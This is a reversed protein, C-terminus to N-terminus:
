VRAYPYKIYKKVLEIELIDFLEYKIDDYKFYNTIKKAFDLSSSYSSLPLLVVISVHIGDNYIIFQDIVRIDSELKRRFSHELLHDFPKFVAIYSDILFEKKLHRLINLEYRFLLEKQSMSYHYNQFNQYIELQDYFYRLIISMQLLSEKNFSLFPIKKILLLAKLSNTKFIPIVALFDDETQTDLQDIYAPKFTSIAEQILPNDKNFRFNQITSDIKIERNKQYTVLAVQQVNYSNKLLLLFEKFPDENKIISKKIIEFSDRISYPKSVYSKELEDHSIKLTYFAHTLKTLKDQYYKSIHLSKLVKRGWINHFQSFILILIFEGLLPTLLSSPYFLFFVVGSIVIISFGALFGYFLVLIASVITFIPFDFKLFLPDNKHFFIGMFCFLFIVFLSEFFRRFNLKNLLNKM